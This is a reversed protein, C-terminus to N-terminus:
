KSGELIEAHEDLWEPTVCRRSSLWIYVFEDRLEDPDAYTIAIIKAKIKGIQVWMGVEYVM